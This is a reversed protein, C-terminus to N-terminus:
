YWFVFSSALLALAFMIVWMWEKFAEMTAARIHCLAGLIGITVNLLIIPHNFMFDRWEPVLYFATWWAHIIFIHTFGLVIGAAVLSARHNVGKRLNYAARCYGIVAFLGLIGMLTYLYLASSNEEM